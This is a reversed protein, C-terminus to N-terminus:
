VKSSQLIKKLEPNKGSNKQVQFNKWFKTKLESINEFHKESIKLFFNKVLLKPFRDSM